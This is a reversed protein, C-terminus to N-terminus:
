YKYKEVYHINIYIEFHPVSNMYKASFSLGINRLDIVM